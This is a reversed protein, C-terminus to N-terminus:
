ENGDEKRHQLLYMRAYLGGNEMLQAHTGREVIRGEDLVLIEDAHEVASLRHSIIVCSRNKLESKLKQLIRQETKNDVASLTDDLLLIDPKRVLARALAVRQRQGGSLHNGREGCLTNLGESMFSIDTSM